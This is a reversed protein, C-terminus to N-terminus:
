VRLHYISKSRIAVSGDHRGQRLICPFVIEKQKSVNWFIQSPASRNREYFFFVASVTIFNCQFISCVQKPFRKIYKQGQSRFINIPQQEEDLRWDNNKVTLNSNSMLSNLTAGGRFAILLALVNLCVQSKNDQTLKEHIKNIKHMKSRQLSRHPVDMKSSSSNKGGFPLFYSSLFHSDRGM